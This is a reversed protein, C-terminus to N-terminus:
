MQPNPVLVSLNNGETDVFGAYNGVGPIETPGSVVKGGAETIKKIVEDMNSVAIVFSPHQAYRGEKKQYLGGNIQGPNKMMGKEDTEGTQAVVYNGMDEGMLQLRWGFVKTYFDTARNKDVYPLEFHVVPNPNM